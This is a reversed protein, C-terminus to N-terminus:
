TTNHELEKEETEKPASVPGGEKQPVAAEDSLKGESQSGSMREPSNELFMVVRKVGQSDTICQARNM